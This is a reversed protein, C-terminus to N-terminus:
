AVRAKSLQRDRVIRNCGAIAWLGRKMARLMEKHASKASRVHGEKSLYFNNM